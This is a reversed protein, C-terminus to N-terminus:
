SIIEVRILIENLFKSIQHTATYYHKTLNDNFGSTSCYKKCTTCYNTNPAWFYRYRFLIQLSYYLFLWFYQNVCKLIKYRTVINKLQSNWTECHLIFTWAIHGKIFCGTYRCFHWPVISLMHIRWLIYIGLVEATQWM